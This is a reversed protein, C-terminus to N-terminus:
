LRYERSLVRGAWAVTVLAATEAAERECVRCTGRHIRTAITASPTPSAVLWSHRNTLEVAANLRGLTAWEASTLVPTPLTVWTIPIPIARGHENSPQVCTWTGSADRPHAIASVPLHNYKVFGNFAAFLEGRAIAALEERPLVDARWRAKQDASGLSLAELEQWLALNDLKTAELISLPAVHLSEVTPDYAGARSAVIGRVEAGADEISPSTLLMSMTVTVRARYRHHADM